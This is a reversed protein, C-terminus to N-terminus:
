WALGRWGFDGDVNVWNGDEVAEWGLMVALIRCGLSGVTCVVRDCEGLVRLDLLYARGVLERQRLTEASPPLEEGDEREDDYVAAGAGVVVEKRGLTWFMPAFFGGEWGVTEDVFGRILSGPFTPKGKTAASDKLSKASPLRVLDQARAATSFEYSDYVDPDDSAVVVLSHKAAVAAAQADASPSGSSVNFEESVLEHAASIYTDLPIYSDRYQFDLPHRDGHRVHIGVMLGSPDDNGMGTTTKASLDSIRTSIYENDTDTLNFLAEYGIRALEFIPRQREVEM